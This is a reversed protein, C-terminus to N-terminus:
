NKLYLLFPAINSANNRLMDKDEVIESRRMPATSSTDHFHYVMWRSIADYVFHGIGNWIGNYSKENREDYLRSEESAGGYSRWPLDDYSRHENIIFNENVTPTLECRYFNSGKAYYSNSEFEFEIEIKSTMKPGNYLFSDAGGNELIFNQFNKRSMAMIMRFVQVLNSKGAGNAGIIVNLNKLEFNNMDRISKFGHISMKKISGKM